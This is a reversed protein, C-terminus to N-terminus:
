FTRAKEEVEFFEIVDREQIDQYNELGIGCENGNTVERVDDKLHKLSSLKGTFVVVNDRLLRARANRRVVGNSVRCGAIRGIKGISFVKLVDATGITRERVEPALMGSLLGRLDDTLEYIISYYRIDTGQQRALERAVADARVNFGLIVANSAKALVVDSETIGGVAGHLVRVAVEESRLKELAGLIAELSGHVDAKVVVALEKRVGEKIESFMQELSSKGVAVARARRGQEVRFQTVQRARMESDVVVFEDGAVPVGGLGLVAVPTSPPALELRRDREDQLARVRGWETGAVVIDGVKLSGRQVLVTAVPGRGRDLKAEVVIGEGARNPNAKLDLLEAQLLLAEELKELNKKEKASVEVSLIDGGMSEDVLGHKLLDQRVRNPNAGPKDMKNIAVVIPVKAAKAHDIAEVTQPMVGDDAAVVLVVVDTVKAGRARMATFAEHGPTDIFTIKKGGATVIQYAGIHQTIGGAEHAAVDAERIADLLSTKGHDVHGMITVVPARFSLAGELDAEGRLGIEVDAASVRKMRHGFESVVLEATDADIPQNITAMVGMNMLVKIVESSREAMRNALEQVTITEPITVDRVIKTATEDSEAARKERERARRVSALSRVRENEDLARTVTLKGARRRPADRGRLAPKKEPRAAKRAKAKEDSEAEEEGEEPVVLRKAAQEEAKRRAAEENKKREEEEAARKAAAEREIQLRVQEENRRKAEVEARKRAEIDAQRAGELARARAEKEDTTLTRLVIGARGHDDRASPAKATPAAPAAVPAKAVPPPTEVAKAVPAPPPAPPPEIAPAPPRAVVPTPRVVAPAAPVPPRELIPREPAPPPAPPAALTSAAADRGGISRKKKIEVAVAKSRGHSFSQRVQGADVTKKMELKKPKSISLKGGDSEHSESM